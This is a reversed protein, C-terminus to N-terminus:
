FLGPIQHCWSRVHDADIQALDQRFLPTSYASLNAYSVHTTYISNIDFNQLSISLGFDGSDRESLALPNAFASLALAATTVFITSFYM